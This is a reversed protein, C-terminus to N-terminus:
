VSQLEWGKENQCPMSTFSKTTPKMDTKVLKYAMHGSTYESSELLCAAFWATIFHAFDAGGGERQFLTLEVWLNRPPMKLNSIFYLGKLQGQTSQLPNKISIYRSRKVFRCLNYIIAKQLKKLVQHFRLKLVRYKTSIWVLFFSTKICYNYVVCISSLSVVVLILVLLFESRRSLPIVVISKVNLHLSLFIAKSQTM